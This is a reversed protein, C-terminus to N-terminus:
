MMGGDIFREKGGTGGSNLGKGCNYRKAISSDIERSGTGDKSSEKGGKCTVGDLFIETIREDMAQIKAAKVGYWGLQIEIKRM